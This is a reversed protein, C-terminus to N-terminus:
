NCNSWGAATAVQLGSVARCRGLCFQQHAIIGTRLRRSLLRAETLDDRIYSVLGYPPRTTPMAVAEDETEYGLIVLEPGFSEERAIAM